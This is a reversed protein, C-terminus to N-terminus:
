AVRSHIKSSRTSPSLPPSSARLASASFIAVGGGGGGGDRPGLTLPPRGVCRGTDAAAATPAVGKFVAGVYLRMMHVVANAATAITPEM